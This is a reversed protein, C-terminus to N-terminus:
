NHSVDAATVKFKRVKYTSTFECWSSLLLVPILYKVEFIPHHCIVRKQDINFTFDDQCVYYGIYHYLKKAMNALM